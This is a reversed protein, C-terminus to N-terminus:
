FFPPGARIGSCRTWFPKGGEAFEHGTFVLALTRTAKPGRIIGGNWMECQLRHIIRRARARINEDSSGAAKELAPLAERADPGFAALAVLSFHRVFWNPDDLGQALAPVVLEPRRSFRGLARVTQRRVTSDPDRMLPVLASVVTDEEMQLVGLALVAASRISPDPDRLSDLLVPLRPRKDGAIRALGYPIRERGYINRNTLAEMLVPLAPPGIVILSWAAASAAHPQTLLATLQPIAPAATEGLISFAQLATDQEQWAMRPRWDVVSQKDLLDGLATKWAPDRAGLKKILYPLANTGMATIAQYEEIVRGEDEDPIASELARLWTSLPKGQYRPERSRVIGWFVAALVALAILSIVVKGCKNM